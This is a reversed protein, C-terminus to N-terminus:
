VIFVSVDVHHGFASMGVNVAAALAVLALAPTALQAVAEPTPAAGLAASFPALQQEAGDAAAVAPEAEVRQAGLEFLDGARSRVCWGEAEARSAPAADPDTEVTAVLGGRMGAVDLQMRRWLIIQAGSGEGVAVTYQPVSDELAWLERATWDISLQSSSVADVGPSRRQQPWRGSMPSQLARASAIACALLGFTRTM